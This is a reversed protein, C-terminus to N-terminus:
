ENGEAEVEEVRFAQLNSAVDKIFEYVEQYRPDSLLDRANSRTFVFENGDVDFIGRWDHLCYKVLMEVNHRKYKKSSMTNNDIQRKNTQYFATAEREQEPSDSRSLKFDIGEQFEFWKSDNTVKTLKLNLKSM